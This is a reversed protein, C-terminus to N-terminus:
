GAATGANRNLAPGALEGVGVGPTVLAREPRAHKREGAEARAPGAGGLSCKARWRRVAM